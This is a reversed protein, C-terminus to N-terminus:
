LAALDEIMEFKNRVVTFDLAKKTSHSLTLQYLLQDIMVQNKAILTEEIDDPNNYPVMTCAETDYLGSSDSIEFLREGGDRVLIVKPNSIDDDKHKCTFAIGLNRLALKIKVLTCM